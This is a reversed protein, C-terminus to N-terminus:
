VKKFIGDTAVYDYAYEGSWDDEDMPWEGNKEQVHMVAGDYQMRILQLAGTVTMEHRYLATFPVQPFRLAYAYFLQPVLDEESEIGTFRCIDQCREITLMTRNRSLWELATRDPDLPYAAAEHRYKLYRQSLTPCKEAEAVWPPGERDIEAYILKIMEEAVHMAWRAHKEKPFWMWIRSTCGM